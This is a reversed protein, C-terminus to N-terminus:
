VYRTSPNYVTYNPRSKSPHYTHSVSSNGLKLNANYRSLFFITKEIRRMEHLTTAATWCVGHFYGWVGLLTYPPLSARGSVNCMSHATGGFLKVAGREGSGAQSATDCSRSTKVYASIAFETFAVGSVPCRVLVHAAALAGLIACKAPVGCRINPAQVTLKSQMTLVSRQTM